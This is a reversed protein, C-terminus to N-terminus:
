RRWTTYGSAALLIEQVLYDHEYGYPNAMEGNVTKALEFLQDAYRDRKVGFDVTHTGAAYEANGQLLSLRMQLPKGDFREVPCLDITGQTGCIRLRREPAVEVSCARLTVTAHPYEMITMCNNKIADPCGPASKLFPVIREPRGLMPVIFDILHCGLNFMIGGKFAGLYKQYADGGYNHSMSAQIEFVEGLWGERVIRQSFQIAPNNRFMYGMQFPLKREECGKRLRGFLKLDEGGPKDMHM